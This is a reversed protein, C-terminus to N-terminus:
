FGCHGRSMDLIFSSNAMGSMSKSSYYWPEDEMDEFGVVVVSDVPAFSLTFSGNSASGTRALAHTSIVLSQLRTMLSDFKPVATSDFDVFVFRHMTDLQALIPGAASVQFAAISVGSVPDVAGAFCDQATGSLAVNLSTSGAPQVLVLVGLM